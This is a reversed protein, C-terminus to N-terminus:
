RSGSSGLPFAEASLPFSPARDLGLVVADLEDTTTELYKSTTIPSAHGLIRQTKILDFGAAKHVRNAFSKRTSHLGIRSAELGLELAVKKLNRHAVERSIAQNPGVRSRFVPGTPMSTMTGLYDAVANRVRDTLPVRRSRVVKRRAGSGGKLEAREVILDTRVGGAPTLLQAWEISLLEGARFGTDLGLLLLLVDRFKGRQRLTDQLLQAEMETLPRTTM